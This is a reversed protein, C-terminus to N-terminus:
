RLAAAYEAGYTVERMFPQLTLISSVKSESIPVEHFDFRTIWCCRKVSIPSLMSWASCLTRRVRIGVASVVKGGIIPDASTIVVPILLIM